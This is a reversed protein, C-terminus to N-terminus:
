LYSYFAVHISPVSGLDEEIVTLARLRGLEQLYGIQIRDFYFVKFHKMLHNKFLIEKNEAKEILREEKEMQQQQPNLQTSHTSLLIGTM